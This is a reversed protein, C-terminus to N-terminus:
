SAALDAAQSSAPDRLFGAVQTVVEPDRLVRRHGLGTTTLLRADPWAIAIARGDSWSTERDDR